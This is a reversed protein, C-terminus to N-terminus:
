HRIRKHLVLYLIVVTSSGTIWGVLVDTPFHVGLLLRSLGALLAFVIACVTISTRHPTHWYLIILMTAIAAAFTSHGSPFSASTESVIRPWLQPRPRNFFAKAISMVLTPLLGSFIIFWARSKNKRRRYEYGALLALLVASVYWKGLWHLAVAPYRFVADFHEHLYIMLPAEFAFRQETLLHEAIQGAALLPLVVALLLLLLHRYSLPSQIAPKSM